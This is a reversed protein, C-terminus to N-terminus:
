SFFRGLEWVWSRKSLLVTCFRSCFHSLVFFFCVLVERLRLTLICYFHRSNLKNNHTAYLKVPIEHVCNMWMRMPRKDCKGCSLIRKRSVFFVECSRGRDPKKDNLHMASILHSPIVIWSLKHFTVSM